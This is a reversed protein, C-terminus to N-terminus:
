LPLFLSDNLDSRWFFNLTLQKFRGSTPIPSCNINFKYALATFLFGNSILFNRVIRLLILNFSQIGEQALTFVFGNWFNISSIEFISNDTGTSFPDNSNWTCVWPYWHSKPNPPDWPHILGPTYWDLLSHTIISKSTPDSYGLIALDRFKYGSCRPGSNIFNYESKMSVRRLSFCLGLFSLSLTKISPYLNIKFPVYPFDFSSVENIYSGKYVNLVVIAPCINIQIHDSLIISAQGLIINIWVLVSPCVINIGLSLISAIRATM